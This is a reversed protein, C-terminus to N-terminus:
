SIPTSESREIDHSLKMQQRLSDGMVFRARGPIFDSRPKLKPKTTTTTTTTATTTEAEAVVAKNQPPVIQIQWNKDYDNTKGVMDTLQQGLRTLLERVVREKDPDGLSRIANSILDSHKPTLLAPGVRLDYKYFASVPQISPDEDERKTIRRRTDERQRNLPWRRMDFYLKRRYAAHRKRIPESAWSWINEREYCQFTTKRKKDTYRRSRGPYLMTRSQVMDEIIGHRIVRFVEVMNESQLLVHSKDIQELIANPRSARFPICQVGNMGGRSGLHMGETGRKWEELASYLHERTLASEKTAHAALDMCHRITRGMRFALIRLFNITRWSYGIDKQIVTRYDVLDQWGPMDRQAQPTLESFDPGEKWSFEELFGGRYAELSHQTVPRVTNRQRRSMETAYINCLGENYTDLAAKTRHRWRIREEPYRAPNTEQDISENLEDHTWPSIGPPTPCVYGGATEWNEDPYYYLNGTGSWWMEKIDKPDVPRKYRLSM